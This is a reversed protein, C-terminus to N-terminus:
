DASPGTCRWLLTLSSRICCAALWTNSSSSATSLSSLISFILRRGQPKCCTVDSFFTQSLFEFFAHWSGAKGVGSTCCLATALFPSVLYHREFAEVSSLAEKLKKYPSQLSSVTSSSFPFNIVNNLRKFLM